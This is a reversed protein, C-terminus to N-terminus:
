DHDRRKREVSEEPHAISRDIAALIEPNSLVKQELMGDARGKDWFFKAAEFIFESTNREDRHYNVAVERNFRRVLGALYKDNNDDTM